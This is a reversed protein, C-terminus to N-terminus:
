ASGLPRHADESAPPADCGVALVITLLALGARRMLPQTGGDELAIVGFADGGLVDCENGHM